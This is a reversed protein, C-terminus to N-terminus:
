AFEFYGFLIHLYILYDIKFCFETAQVDRLIDTIQKMPEFILSESKRYNYALIIENPIGCSPKETCANCSFSDKFLYNILDQAYGNEVSLYINVKM